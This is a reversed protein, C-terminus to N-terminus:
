WGTKGLLGFAIAALSCLGVVALAVVAVVLWRQAVSPAPAVFGAFPDTMPLEDLLQGAPGLQGPPLTQAASRVMPPRTRSLAAPPDITARLPPPYSSRPAPAYSVRESPPYSVREPPLYSSRPAPPYSVRSPEGAGGGLSRASMSGVGPAAAVPSSPDRRQVRASQAPLLSSLSAPPGSGAASPPPEPVSSRRAPDAAGIPNTLVFAEHDLESADAPSLGSVTGEGGSGFRRVRRPPPQTPPGVVRVLSAFVATKTSSAEPAPASAASPVAESSVAVSFPAVSPAAHSRASPAAVQPAAAAASAPPELRPLGLLMTQKFPHRGGVAVARDPGTPAAPRLPAPLPTGVAQTEAMTSPGRAMLAREADSLAAAADVMTAEDEDDSGFAPGMRTVAPDVPPAVASAVAPDDSRAAARLERM